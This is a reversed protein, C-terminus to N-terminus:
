VSHGMERLADTPHQLGYKKAYVRAADWLKRTATFAAFNEPTGKPHRAAEDHLTSLEALAGAYTAVCKMSEQAAVEKVLRALETLKEPQIPM